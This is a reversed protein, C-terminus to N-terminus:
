ERKSSIRSLTPRILIKTKANRQAPVQRPCNGSSATIRSVESFPSVKNNAPFSLSSSTGRSGAEVKLVTIAQAAAWAIVTKFTSAPERPVDLEREKGALLLTEGKESTELIVADEPFQGLCTGAWLFALVLIRM